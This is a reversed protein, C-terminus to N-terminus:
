NEFKKWDTWTNDNLAHRTWKIGPLDYPLFTQYIVPKNNYDELRENRVLGKTNGFYAEPFVGESEFESKHYLINSPIMVASDYNYSYGQNMISYFDIKPINGLYENEEIRANRLNDSSPNTLICIGPNASNYFQNCKITGIPKPRNFTIINTTFNKFICKIFDIYKGDGIFSLGAPNKVTDFECQEFLVKYAGGDCVSLSDNHINKFIVNSVKVRCASNFYIARNAKLVNSNEFVISYVGNDDKDDNTLPNYNGYVTLPTHVNEFKCNDIKFSQYNLRENQQFDIISRDKSFICIAGMGGIDNFYCNTILGNTTITLNPDDSEIDIAGPMGNGTTRYFDCNDIIFRDCYYISIAQRNYQNVGDFKCNKITVNKNYANRYGGEFLGRCIAIGDGFFGTFTCNEVTFDSVGHAAIHHSLEDVKPEPEPEQGPLPVPVPPKINLTFFNLGSIKINKISNSDDSQNSVCAEFAFIGDAATNRSRTLGILKSNNGIIEINSYAKTKFDIHEVAYSGSPILLKGGGISSLFDVSKQFSQTDNTVSDGVAGFWKVNVTDKILVRRYFVNSISKYIINDCMALTIPVGNYTVLSELFVTWEGTFPDNQEITNM